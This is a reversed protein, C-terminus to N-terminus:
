YEGYSFWNNGTCSAVTINFHETIVLYERNDEPLREEVPIWTTELEQIKPLLEGIAHLLDFAREQLEDTNGELSTSEYVEEVM